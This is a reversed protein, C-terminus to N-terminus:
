KLREIQDASPPPRNITLFKIAEETWHRRVIDGQGTWIATTIERWWGKLAHVAFLKLAVSDLDDDQNPQMRLLYEDWQIRKLKNIQKTIEQQQQELSQITQAEERAIAEGAVCEGCGCKAADGRSELYTRVDHQTPRGHVGDKSIWRIGIYGAEVEEATWKAPGTFPAKIEDAMAQEGKLLADREATLVKAQEAMEDMLLAMQRTRNTANMEHGM